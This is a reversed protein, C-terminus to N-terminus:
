WSGFGKLWERKSEAVSGGGSRGVGISLPRVWAGEVYQDIADRIVDAQSRGEARAIAKTARDQGEDLYITTKKRM